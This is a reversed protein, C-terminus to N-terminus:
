ACQEEEESDPMPVLENAIRYSAMTGADTWWGDMIGYTLVRDGLLYQTNVDTIELEGRKSPHLGRIIRFVESDYMYIGTVALESAPEKPKEVIWVVKEGEVCAVGFRSPDHVQKLLLRAGSEQEKFAMVHPQLSEQFINDGLIVVMRDGHVFNEALSLAQAIGGAEDQVKYDFDCGFDRGSGLLGFVDGMHERGSVILIDTIGSEVLKEIPHFIMPKGGVPLLHKNTVRTLPLLRKGSGGALIIGKM